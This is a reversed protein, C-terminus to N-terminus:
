RRAGMDIRGDEHAGDPGVRWAGVLADAHGSSPWSGTLGATGIWDTWDGGSIVIPRHAGSTPRDVHPSVPNRDAIITVITTPATVRASLILRPAAAKVGLSPAVWGGDPSDEGERLHASLATPAFWHLSAHGEFIAADGCVELRGPAFQFTVEIDHDGVGDLVDCIVVYGRQRVWVARRHIVGGAPLARYGDHRGVVWPDPSNVDHAELTATYTHSWAMKNIHLAQDRGDIRVTNHAATERFHDQWPKPGNYCHFGPDVLVPRGRRWVIV